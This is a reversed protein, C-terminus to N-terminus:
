PLSFLPGANNMIALQSTQNTTLASTLFIASYAISPFGNSALWQWATTHSSGWAPGPDFANGLGKPANTKMGGAYQQYQSLAEGGGTYMTMLTKTSNTVFQVAWTAPIRSMVLSGPADARAGVGSLLLGLGAALTQPFLTAKWNRTM